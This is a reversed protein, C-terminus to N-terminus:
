LFVRYKEYTPIYRYISLNEYDISKYLVSFSLYSTMSSNEVSHIVTKRKEGKGKKADYVNGYVSLLIIQTMRNTKPSLHRLWQKRNSIHTYKEASSM